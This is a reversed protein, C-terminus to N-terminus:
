PFPVFGLLTDPFKDTVLVFGLDDLQALGEWNRAEEDPLLELQIPPADVAVIGDETFQLQLLREVTVSQSHTYGAGYTQNFFDEAPKLKKDGPYFYNIVWFRGNQDVHSADTLRYEITPFAFSDVPNLQRDFVHAVPKPNVTLGNAEYLTILREGFVLLSEDSMNDLKAQPAIATLSDADIAIQDGAPNITGSVLYGIMGGPKAEITLYVTDGVAAIAEYGEFGTISTELGDSEFGIPQIPLPAQQNTQVATLLDDKHIRFLQDGLRGPYQPLLILWDEAWTLGSIEANPSNLPADLTLLQVPIEM